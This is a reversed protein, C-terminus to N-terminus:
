EHHNRTPLKLACAGPGYWGILLICAVLPLNHIILGAPNKIQGGGFIIGLGNMAILLAIQFWAIAGYFLGSLVGLALLTEGLGIGLMFLRGSEPEGAFQQVISLEHADQLIVKLWLGEYLWVLAIIVRVALLFHPHLSRANDNTIASNM